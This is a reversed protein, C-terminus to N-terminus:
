PQRPKLPPHIPSLTFTKAITLNREVHAEGQELIGSDQSTQSYAGLLKSNKSLDTNPLM